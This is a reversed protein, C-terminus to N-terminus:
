PASRKRKEIEKRIAGVAADLQPDGGKLLLDRTLVVEVDPQAGRGEVLEGKPTKFDAIAYQFGAGTPLKTIVSPLAAGQTREGVIVARGLAQLGGAFLESTSASLIDTVVAVPGLYPNSQPFVAVNVYGSRMQMSGLSAQKDMFLGAIGGSLGAVGGPNGRVDFIIGPADSMSRIAARMRDMISVMFINFRIYGIGGDLRKAEFETFQPPMNGMRQSFDGTKKRRELEIERSAGKGDVFGAVVKTGAAGDLFNQVLRAGFMKQRPEPLGSKVVRALMDAVTRNGIKRVLFGPAVGGEAASSKPEVLTVVAEGDLIRVEAGIGGVRPENDIDDLIARPPLIQFHSLKLEGIMKNLLAHLEDDTKTKAVQPEYRQRVAAWDVGGFTRDYHHDNITGWVIEFTKQRAAAADQSRLLPAFLLAALVLRGTM